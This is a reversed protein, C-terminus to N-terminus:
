IEDASPGYIAPLPVNLLRLYVSLQGRHHYLHNGTVSRIAGIRPRSLIQYEGKKLTWTKLLHEDTTEELAKLALAINRDHFALLDAKNKATYPTFGGDALNMEDMNIIFDVWLQLEVIHTALEGLTRSKEHPKFDFQDDPIRELMKRTSAGESTLEAILVRTRAM